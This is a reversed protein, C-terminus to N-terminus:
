IFLGYIKGCGSFKIWLNLGLILTVAAISIWDTCTFKIINYFTRKKRSKFGKSDLAMALQDTSRISTLFIPVLLPVHKRTRTIINGTDLDLGRSKQAQIISQANGILTPLLRLAMSFAFSFGFPVKLRILGQTLDENRTTSLFIIGSIMMIDLKLAVGIGYLASEVSIRWFIIHAGGAFFAWLVTSFVSIIMLLYWIRAINSFCKALGAHLLVMCLIPFIFLPHPHLVSIIFTVVLIFIKTRPDLRHIITDSETFLYINM